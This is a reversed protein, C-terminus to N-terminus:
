ATQLGREASRSRVEETGTEELDRGQTRPAFMIGIVGSVLLM